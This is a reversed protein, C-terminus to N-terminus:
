PLDVTEVSLDASVFNLVLKKEAADGTVFLARNGVTIVDDGRPLHRESLAKAAEDVVGDAGLVLGSTGAFTSSQGSNGNWREWLVVYQDNGISAIRPRDAQAGASAYDTLWDFHNDYDVEVDMDNRREVRTVTMTESGDVFSRSNPNKTDFDRTVRLFALDRTGVLTQWDSTPMDLTRDTTFVVLYGFDGSAIPAIGGLRTFTSNEGVPGKPLFLEYTQTGANAQFRGLSISRPYADGLHVEVFGSGDYFLRQDFSHSVWMTSTRTVAGSTADFHTTLAKQHRVGQM